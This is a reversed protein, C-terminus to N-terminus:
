ASEQVYECLVAVGSGNFAIVFYTAPTTGFYGKKAPTAIYSCRCLRYLGQEDPEGYTFDFKGYREEIEISTKGYIWNERYPKCGSLIMIQILIVTIVIYMKKM